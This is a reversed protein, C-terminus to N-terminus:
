HFGALAWLAASEYVRGRAIVLKTKRIDGIATLPNGAVVVGLGLARM